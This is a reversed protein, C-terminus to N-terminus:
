ITEVYFLQHHPIGRWDQEHRVSIVRISKRGYWLTDGVMRSPEGVMRLVKRRAYPVYERREVAITIHELEPLFQLAITIDSIDKYQYVAPEPAEYNWVEKFRQIRKKVWGLM